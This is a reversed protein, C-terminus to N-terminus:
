SKWFRDRREHVHVHKCRCSRCHLSERAVSVLIFLGGNKGEWSDAVRYAKLGMEHNLGDASM